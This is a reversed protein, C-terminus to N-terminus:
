PASAKSWLLNGTSVTVHGKLTMLISMYYVTQTVYKLAHPQLTYVTSKNLCYCESCWHLPIQDSNQVVLWHYIKLTTETFRQSYLTKNHIANDSDYGYLRELRYTIQKMNKHLKNNIYAPLCHNFNSTCYQEHYVKAEHISLFTTNRDKHPKYASTTTNSKWQSIEWVAALILSFAFFFCNKRCTNIKHNFNITSCREPVSVKLFTQSLNCNNYAHRQDTCLHLSKRRYM